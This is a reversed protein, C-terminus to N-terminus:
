SKCIGGLNFGIGAKVAWDKRAQIDSGIKSYRESIDGSTSHGIWFKKLGHPVNEKDLHTVRFRRFRHFDSVKSVKELNRRLTSESAVVVRGAPILEQLARNLGPNLDVIRIGADTKSKKIDLLSNSVDWRNETTGDTSLHTLEDLRLGSGALLAYMGKERGTTNALLNELMELPLEPAKQDRVTPADIFDNNWTRPYLQNGEDDLASKVVAKLIVLYLNVTAPSLDLGAIFGRASKNTVVSLDLAGLAPILHANLATEYRRLTSAEVPNKKRTKLGQLWERSQEGFTM